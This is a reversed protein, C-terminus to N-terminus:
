ARRGFPAGRAILWGILIGVVPLGYLSLADLPWIGFQQLLLAVGLGFLLGGLVGLGPRGRRM